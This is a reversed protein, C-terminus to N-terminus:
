RKYTYIIRVGGEGILTQSQIAFPSPLYSVTFQTDMKGEERARKAFIERWAYAESSLAFRGRVQFRSDMVLWPKHNHAHKM